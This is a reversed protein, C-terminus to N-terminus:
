LAEFGCVVGIGMMIGDVGGIWGIRGGRIAEELEQRSSESESLEPVAIPLLHWLPTQLEGIDQVM